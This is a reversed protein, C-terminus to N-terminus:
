CCNNKKSIFRCIHQPKDSRLQASKVLSLESHEMHKWEQIWASSVIVMQSMSMASPPLELLDSFFWGLVSLVKRVHYTNYGSVNWQGFCTTHGREINVMLMVM